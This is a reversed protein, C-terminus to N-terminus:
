SVILNLLNFKKWLSFIVSNVEEKTWAELVTAMKFSSSHRNVDVSTTVIEAIQHRIYTSVSSM